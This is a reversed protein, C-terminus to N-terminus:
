IAIQGLASHKDDGLGESFFSYFLQLQIKDKVRFMYCESELSVPFGKPRCFGKLQLESGQTCVARRKKRNVRIWKLTLVNFPKLSLQLLLCISLCTQLGASQCLKMLEQWYRGTKRQKLSNGSCCSWFPLRWIYFKKLALCGFTNNKLPLYLCCLGKLISTLMHEQPHHLKQVKINRVCVRCNAHM